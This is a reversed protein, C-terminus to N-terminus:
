HHLDYPRYDRELKDVYYRVYPPVPPLDRWKPVIPADMLAAAKPATAGTGPAAARASNSAVELANDGQSYLRPPAALSATVMGLLSLLKRRNM